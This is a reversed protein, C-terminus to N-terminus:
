SAPYTTRARIITELEHISLVVQVGPYGQVIDGGGWRFAQGGVLVPLESYQRRVAEIAAILAHMGAQTSMSLALLHPRRDGIMALLEALSTNAGLFYGHWGNLEFIDAVMRGGLEHFENAVCSVVATRNLHPRAFIIPYVLSLLGETVSTAVHETAVSIRNAEWLAGVEYMSRQMLNTYLTKVDICGNLLETVIAACAQQDGVLLAALYRGYLDETIM